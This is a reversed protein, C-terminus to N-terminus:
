FQAVKIKVIFDRNEKVEFGIIKEEGKRLIKLSNDIKFIISKEVKGFWLM